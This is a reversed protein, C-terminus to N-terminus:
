QQLLRTATLIAQVLDFENSKCQLTVNQAKVKYNHLNTSCNCYYM